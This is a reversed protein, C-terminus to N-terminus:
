NPEIQTGDIRFGSCVDPISNYIFSYIECAKKLAVDAEDETIVIDDPYRTRTAYQTLIACDELYRSFAENRESCLQCLLALDHTYPAEVDHYLLFAKMAKEVAQQSHYCSIEIQKPYVVSLMHFAAIM